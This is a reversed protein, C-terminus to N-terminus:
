KTRLLVHQRMENFIPNTCVFVTQRPPIVVHKLRDRALMAECVNSRLERVLEPSKLNNKAMLLLNEPINRGPGPTVQKTFFWNSFSSLM